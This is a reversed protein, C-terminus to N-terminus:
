HLSEQDKGAEPLENEGGAAQGQRSDKVPAVVGRLQARERPLDEPGVSGVDPDRVDAEAHHRSECGVPKEVARRECADHSSVDRGVPSSADEYLEEIEVAGLSRWSREVLQGFDREDTKEDEQGGEVAVNRHGSADIDAYTGDSSHTTATRAAARTTSM